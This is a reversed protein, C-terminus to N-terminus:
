RRMFLDRFEHRFTKSGLLNTYCSICYPIFGIITNFFTVFTEIQSQAISKTEYQTAQQYMVTITLPISCVIYITTDISLIRIFQRDRLPLTHTNRVASTQITQIIPVVRVHHITRINKFTWLGFVLMLLPVLIAKIILSYYAIITFYVGPIFYCIDYNPEFEVINVYVFAHTHLLIWFVVVSIACIYAHHLSSRQRTRANSSTVLIRDISALILCSPSLIDCVMTMYIIFRCYILNYSTPNISYGSSLTVSVLSTCIYACSSSHFVIMYIACPNKRLNKKTFIFLSLICSITGFGILVPGFFRYLQKQAFQLSTILNTDSSSLSM